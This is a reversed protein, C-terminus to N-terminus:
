LILNALQDDQATTDVEEDGSAISSASASISGTEPSKETQLYTEMKNRTILINVLKKEINKSRIKLEEDESDTCDAEFFTTKYRPDLYTALISNYGDYYREFLKKM